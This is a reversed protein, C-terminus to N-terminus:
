AYHACSRVLHTSIPQLFQALPLSTNSNVFSLGQVQELIVLQQTNAGMSLLFPAGIGQSPQAIAVIPLLERAKTCSKTSAQSLKDFM